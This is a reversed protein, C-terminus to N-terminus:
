AYDLEEDNFRTIVNGEWRTACIHASEGDELGFGEDDSGFEYNCESLIDYVEEETLPRESRLTLYVEARVTTHFEKM